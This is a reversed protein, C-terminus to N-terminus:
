HEQWQGLWGQMQKIEAEQATIIAGALEKLESQADQKQMDKAMEIAGEHHPIMQKLFEIDFENGRLTELRAVDMGGMGHTMGPFGDNVAKASEAFLKDRLGKMRAIEREQDGVIGAAFQKLEPHQARTEALRAMDVAGQHHATMTDIFQLDYPANGAGQSTEAPPRPMASHNAVNHNASSAPPLEPNNASRGPSSFRDPPPGLCASLFLCALFLLKKM